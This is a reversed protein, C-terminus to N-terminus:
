NVTSDTYKLVIATSKVLKKSKKITKVAKYKVTYKNGIPAKGLAGSIKVWVRDGKKSKFTFSKDSKTLKLVKAKNKNKVFIEVKYEKDVNDGTNISVKYSSTKPSTFTFYDVDGDNLINATVTGKLKGAKSFSNNDEVEWKGTKTVEAKLKYEVGEPFQSLLSSKAFVRIYLEEGKAFPLEPLKKDKKIGVEKYILNKSKDYIEINWGNGIKDPVFDVIEFSVETVGTENTKLVYFDEDAKNLLNGRIYNGPLIETAQIYKSNPEGEYDGAEYTRFNLNYEVGKPMFLSTTSASEVSIYVVKDKQFSFNASTFQSKIGEVKYIEEKNEDYVKLTWGNKVKDKQTADFNFTINQYGSEEVITRYMNIQDKDEISRVINLDPEVDETITEAKVEGGMSLLAAFFATGFIFGLLNNKM